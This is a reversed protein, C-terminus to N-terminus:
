ADPVECVQLRGVEGALRRARITAIFAYHAARNAARMRYHKPLPQM